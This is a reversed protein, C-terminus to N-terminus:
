IRSEDDEDADSEIPSGGTSDRAGTDKPETKEDKEDGIQNGLCFDTFWVM